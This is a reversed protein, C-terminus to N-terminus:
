ICHSVNGVQWDNRGPTNEVTLFTSYSAAAVAIEHDSTTRKERRKAELGFWFLLRCTEWSHPKPSTSFSQDYTAPGRGNPDYYQWKHIVKCDSSSLWAMLKANQGNANQGVVKDDDETTKTQKPDATETDALPQNSATITTQNRGFQATIRWRSDQPM